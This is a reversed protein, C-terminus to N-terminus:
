NLGFQKSQEKMYAFISEEAKVIPVLISSRPFSVSVIEDGKQEWLLDDSIGFRYMQTNDVTPYGMIRDNRTQAVYPWCLKIVENFNLFTRGM